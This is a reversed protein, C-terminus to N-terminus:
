STVEDKHKPERKIPEAEGQRIFQLALDDSLEIAKGPTAVGFGPVIREESRWIVNM